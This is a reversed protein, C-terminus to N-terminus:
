VKIDKILEVDLANVTIRSIIRGDCTITLDQKEQTLNWVVASKATPYWSFVVPVDEVVHPIGKLKQRISNKFAFLEKINELVEMSETHSMDLLVFDYNNIHLNSGITNGSTYVVIQPILDHVISKHASSQLYLLKIKDYNNTTSLM